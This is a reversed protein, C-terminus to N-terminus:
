RLAEGGWRTFGIKGSDGDFLQGCYEKLYNRLYLGAFWRGSLCSQM